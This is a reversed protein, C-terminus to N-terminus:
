LYTTIPQRVAAPFLFNYNQIPANKNLVEDQWNSNIGLVNNPNNARLDPHLVEYDEDGPQLGQKHMKLM